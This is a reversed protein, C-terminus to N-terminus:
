NEKWNAEVICLPITAYCVQGTNQLLGNVRVTYNAFKCGKPFLKKVAAVIEQQTADDCGSGSMPTGGGTSGGGGGGGGPPNKTTGSETYPNTVFNSVVRFRTATGGVTSVSNGNNAFVVFLHSTGGLACVGDAVTDQPQYSSFIIIGSLGFGQTIVRENATLTLFWGKSKGSPPNTVFNSSASVDGSTVDLSQYNAETKPLGAGGSNFNDDVILYFRGVQNDVSWLNERDGTGFTLAYRSLQAVYFPTAAIYIPRGGTDFIPFPYV